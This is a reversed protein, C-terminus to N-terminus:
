PNANQRTIFNIIENSAANVSPPNANIQVIITYDSNWLMQADTRGGGSHGRVVEGNSDFEDIGYAYRRTGKDDKNVKSNVMEAIV